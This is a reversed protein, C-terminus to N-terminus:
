VMKFKKITEFARMKHFRKMIDMIQPYKKTIKLLSESSFILLELPTAAIVSATRPKGTLFSVEGFFDHAQLKSLVLQKGSPDTTLVKVIGYKILFLDRGDSGEELVVEGKNYKTLVFYNSLAHREETELSLFLPSKALILDLVRSRYYEHLCNELQPFIKLVESFDDRSIEFLFTEESAVLTATRNSGTLFSIEGFFDGKELKVLTKEQGEPTYRSYEKDKSFKRQKSSVVVEMSGRSILYLSDGPDGQNFLVDGMGLKIVNTVKVIESLEEISCGEFLPSGLSIMEKQAEEQLSEMREEEEKLKKLREEEAVLSKTKEIEKL